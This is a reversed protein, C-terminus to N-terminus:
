DDDDEILEALPREVWKDVVDALHHNQDWDSPLGFRDCLSRLAAVADHREAALQARDREEGEELGATCALLLRRAMARYGRMYMQDDREPDREDSM